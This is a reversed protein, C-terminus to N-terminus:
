AYWKKIRLFEAVIRTENLEVLRRLLLEDAIRHDSEKDMNDGANKEVLMIMEDLISISKTSTNQELATMCQLYNDWADICKSVVNTPTSILRLRDIFGSENINDVIYDTIASQVIKDNDM